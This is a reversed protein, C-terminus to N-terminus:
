SGIRETWTITYSSEAPVDVIFEIQRAHVRNYKDSENFIQWPSQLNHIVIIRKDDKSRNRLEIEMDRETVTRSISRQDIMTTEGILDFAYGTSITVEENVATHEIRDEGIFEMSDDAEDKMYVKIIGQPLPRGLGEKESNVFVIKSEVNNQRTQTVYEYRSNANVVSLPFFQIQKTQMNNISVKESLTYLHFDHFAKEEFRPAKVDMTELFQARTRDVIQSIKRVEGALLKVSTDEFQKGSENNITVWSNIELKGADANWVTNYTVYWRIGHCIYSIEAPYDGAKDATLRWHLTPKLFFNEPLEKLNINRIEAYKILVLQQTTSDIIGVTNSDNFQLVGSFRDDTKTVLEIEKGLYKQLIKRTDALDYEYNQSFIDFNKDTPKIIVSNAEISYPIDDMFYSQLGKELSLKLSNRVLAFNENYITLHNTTAMLASGALMVIVIMIIIKV